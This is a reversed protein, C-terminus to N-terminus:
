DDTEEAPRPLQVDHITVDVSEVNLETHRGLEAFIAGRVRDATERVREGWVVSVDVRISIPEGPVTVDGDLRCRGILAGGVADGAARIMGRVAGETVALHATPAPHELPIDRGARAELGISSLIDAVWKDGRPPEAAVDQELLALSITRLRQLAAIAIQCGPSSDIVPDRPTQGRDLYDSLEDITYGDLDAESTEARADASRPTNPEEPTMM